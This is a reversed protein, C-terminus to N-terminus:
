QEARQADLVAAALDDQALVLDDLGSNAVSWLVVHVVRNAPTGSRRRGLSEIEDAAARLRGVVSQVKAEYNERAWRERHTEAM